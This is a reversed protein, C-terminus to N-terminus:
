RVITHRIDFLSDIDWIRNPIRGRNGALSWSVAMYCGRHCGMHLHSDAIQQPSLPYAGSIQSFVTFYTVVSGGCWVQEYKIWVESSLTRPMRPWQRGPVPRWRRPSVCPWTWAIRRPGTCGRRQGSHPLWIKSFCIRCNKRWNQENRTKLHKESPWIRNAM